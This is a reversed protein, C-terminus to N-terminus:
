LEEHLRCVSFCVCLYKESGTELCPKCDLERLSLMLRHTFAFPNESSNFLSGLLVMDCEGRSRFVVFSAM